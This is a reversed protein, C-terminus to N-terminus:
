VNCAFFEELQGWNFIEIVLGEHDRSKNRKLYNLAIELNSITWPPSEKAEALKMKLDFIIERRKQIDGFDPWIPWSRLREKYEKAMLKKIERPGTILKRRHNRKATLLTVGCKPSLKKLTKWMQQLNINDPDDSYTKFHKMIKNRNEEAEMESIIKNLKDVEHKNNEEKLLYNRKDVLNSITQNLPKVHKKKSIRIKKFSRSCCAKLVNRWNEIQKMLTLNTNFCDTFEQTETTVEKFTQQADKDKFNFVETREPKETEVEIKVDMFQTFHDSDTAKGGKRVHEYNTLIYKKDEDIVMKTIHPLVRSCVVFFVLVSLETNGDRVRCRTILGECLPLANVVSLQPHRSLFEEFLKGNKNQPRPDGPIVKDGAWLNGDFHMILGSGSSCALLVEEDLYAWFAEKREKIESEQCGYAVCCRITM